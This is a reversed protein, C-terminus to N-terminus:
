KSNKIRNNLNSLEVNEVLKNSEKITPIQFITSQTQLNPQSASIKSINRSSKEKDTKNKLETETKILQNKLLSLESKLERMCVELKNNEHSLEQSKFKYKEYERTLLDQELDITSINIKYTVAKCEKKFKEKNSEHELRLWANELLSIKTKIENTLRESLPYILKLELKREILKSVNEILQHTEKYNNAEYLEFIEYKSIYVIAM